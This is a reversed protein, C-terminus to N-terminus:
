NSRDQYISGSINNLRQNLRWYQEPTLHGGDQQLDATRQANVQLERNELNHFETGSLQGAETGALIRHEQRLERDHVQGPVPPTQMDRDMAWATNTLRHNLNEQQQPTLHGDNAQLDASRQSGIAYERTELRHAEANSLQGNQVGNLIRKEQHMQRHLVEQASAAGATVLVTLVALPLLRCLKSTM